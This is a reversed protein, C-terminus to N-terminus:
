WGKMDIAPKKTIVILSDDSRPEEGLEDLGLSMKGERIAELDKVAQKYQTQLPIWDNNSGGESAMLSTIGGVIRYSSIVAAIRKITGPVKILPLEFRARLADDIEVAVNQLTREVIGPTQDDAASIYGEVVYDTLDDRECYV